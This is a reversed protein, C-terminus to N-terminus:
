STLGGWGFVMPAPPGGLSSLAVFTWCWWWLEVPHSLLLLMRFISSSSNSYHLQLSAFLFPSLRRWWCLCVSKWLPLFTSPPPLSNPSVLCSVWCSLSAEFTPFFAFFFAVKAWGEKLSVIMGGKGRGRVVCTPAEWHHTHHGVGINRVDGRREKTGLKPVILIQASGMIHLADRGCLDGTQIGAAPILRELHM